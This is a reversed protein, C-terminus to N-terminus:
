HMSHARGTLTAFLIVVVTVIYWQLYCHKPPTM